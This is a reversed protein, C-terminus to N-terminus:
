VGLKAKNIINELEINSVIDKYEKLLTEEIQNKVQNEFKSLKEKEEITLSDIDKTYIKDIDDKKLAEQLINYAKMYALNAIEKEDKEPESLISDSDLLTLSSLLRGVRGNICVINNNNEIVDGNIFMQVMIDVANNSQVCDLLQDILATKMENVHDKNDNHNIREWVLNLIWNENIPKDLKNSIDSISTINNNKEIEALVDNIKQINQDSLNNKAYIKIQNNTDLMRSKEIEQQTFGARILEKTQDNNNVDNLDLLRNYKKRLSLIIQSNHVNQSDNNHKQIDKYYKDPNKTYPNRIIQISFTKPIDKIINDSRNGLINDPRNSPLITNIVACCFGIILIIIIILVAFKIIIPM